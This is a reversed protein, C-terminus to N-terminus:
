NNVLNYILMGYIFQENLIGTSNDVADLITPLIDTVHIMADSVYGSKNLLPSWIFAPVRIGLVCHFYIVCHSYHNDISTKIKFYRFNYHCRYYLTGGEFYEMKMGRLPWNSGGNAILYFDM